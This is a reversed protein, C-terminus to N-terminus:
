RREERDYNLGLQTALRTWVEHFHDATAQAKTMEGRDIRQQYDAYVEDRVRNYAPLLTSYAWRGDWGGAPPRMSYRHTPTVARVEAMGADAALMIDDPSFSNGAHRPDSEPHRWGLPHNHTVTAGRLQRMQASTVSVSNGNGGQRLIENGSQDYAVLTETRQQYIGDEGRRVVALLADRSLPTNSAPAAPTPTPMGPLRPANAKAALVASLSKAYRTTGWAKSRKRGVFDRLNIVGAAYLQQGEIGLVKQQVAVPQRRLWAEGTEWQPRPAGKVVPVPSCRGNPHDDLYATLPFVQGDMALCMPCTRGQHAAMWMWGEIVDSNARYSQLSAQRMARMTETRSIRMINALPHAFQKRILRATKRPNYGLAVGKVLTDGIAQATDGALGSLLSRLPSGDQLYGVLESTASSPLRMWDVGLRQRAAHVQQRATQQAADVAYRQQQIIRQEAYTAFAAIEREIQAQLSQMRNYRYYWSAGISEDKKRAEVFDRQMAEIQRQLQQWMQGYQRVMEGSADREHRLLDAKFARAIQYITAM